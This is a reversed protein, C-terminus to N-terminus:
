ESSQRIIDRYDTAIELRMKRLEDLEKRKEESSMNPDRKVAEEAKKLSQMEARFSPGSDSLSLRASERDMYREAEADRGEDVLKNFTNRAQEAKELQEYVYDIVRNGDNAQFLSGIVPTKSLKKDPSPPANPDRLIPNAASLMAVALQTGVGRVFQDVQVPSVMGQSAGSLLKALDTTDDRFRETPDLRKMQATEVDADTFLDKGTALEIFPKAVQPTVNPVSQLMLTKLGQAIPKFEDQGFVTNVFAEPIAKFLLGYEFPIPIKVPEDLGPIRVFWSSLRQEPTANKYAEDDEMMAAYIMTMVAMGLGRRWFKNRIDLRDQYPMRGRASRYTVNLSQLQTNFFPVLTNMVYVSPSLGRRNFDIIDNTALFADLDNFGMRKYSDYASVRTGIDAYMSMAELKALGTTLTTRGSTIGRLITSIGELGEGALVQGGLLGRTELERASASKKFLAKVINKTPDTIPNFDAGSTGYASLSDRMIQRIPYLPNLVVFKRLLRAPFGFLQLAAPFTTKVGELGKVLLEAPIGEFITNETQVIAHRDVGNERFRITLPSAPGPGNRVVMGERGLDKLMGLKKLTYVVNKTTINRLAMDTLMHTNQVSSTFVDQIPKTGGVLERLYPQDKLNGITIPAAESGIFLQVNGGVERYFPIYDKKRKLDAAIEPSIAGAQVAFDIMGANYANYEKRAKEFAASIKPQSAVDKEVGRLKAATLLPEGDKDVGYNLAEVGIGENKVRQSALWLTFVRGAEDAKMGSEGLAKFVKVLSPNDAGEKTQVMWYNRAGESYKKLELPGEAAVNRTFNMRKDHAVLYYRAQSAELESIKGTAVGRQLAALFPATRDFAQTVGTLGLVNGKVTDIASKQTAVVRRLVEKSTDSMWDLDSSDGDRFVANGDPTIYVGPRGNKLAREADRILAQIEKTDKKAQSSLGTNRMWSRVASIMDRIFTKVQEAFSPAVRRGESARAIMERVQVLKSEQSQRLAMQATEVNPYLGLGVAVEAVHAEGRAFLKDSLAQVGDKGLVIDAGYHGILEHAITEELDAISKHAEGVVVVTGDPMVAGKARTRGRRKLAKKFVDPADVLTPAYVFKVGEPLANQVRDAIAKAEGADVGTDDASADRLDPEDPFKATAETVGTRLNAPRRVGERREMGSIEREAKAQAKATKLKPARPAPQEERPTFKIVPETQEQYARELEQMADATEKAQIESAIRKIAATDAANRRKTRAAVQKGLQTVQDKLKKVSAQQRLVNEQKRLAGLYAKYEKLDKQLKDLLTNEKLLQRQFSASGVVKNAVRQLREIEEVTEINAEKRRLDSFGFMADNLNELSIELTQKKQISKSFDNKLFDDIRKIEADIAKATEEVLAEQKEVNARAAIRAATEKQAQQLRATEKKQQQEANRKRRAEIKAQAAAIQEPTKEKVIRKKPEKPPLPPLPKLKVAKKRVGKQATKQIADETFRKLAALEGTRTDSITMGRKIVDQRQRLSQEYKLLPIMESQPANRAIAEQIKAEAAARAKALAEEMANKLNVPAAREVLRDLKDRIQEALKIKEATTLKKGTAEIRRLEAERVAADTIEAAYGLAKRQDAQRTSGTFEGKRLSDVINGYEFLANNRREAQKNAETIGKETIAAKTKSGEAPAFLSPPGAIELVEPVTTAAELAKSAKESLTTEAPSLQESQLTQEAISRLRQLERLTAEVGVLQKGATTLAGDAVLEKNPFVTNRQNTLTRIRDDIDRIAARAQTPDTLDVSGAFSEYTDLGLFKATSNEPRALYADLRPNTVQMLSPGVSLQGSDIESQYKQLLARVPAKEKLTRRSAAFIAELPAERAAKEAQAGVGEAEAEERRQQRQANFVDRAQQLRAEQAETLQELAQEGFAAGGVYEPSQTFLAIQQKLGAIQQETSAIQSQIFQKRLGVSNKKEELLQERQGELKELANILQPPAEPRAAEAEGAPYGRAEMDEAFLAAQREIRQGAERELPTGTTEALQQELATIRPQLATAEDYQGKKNLTKQRARLAQLQALVGRNTVGLDDESVGYQAAQAEFDALAQKRQESLKGFYAIAQQNNQEEAEALRASVDDLDAAARRYNTLFEQKDQESPGEPRAGLPTFAGGVEGFMDLQTGGYGALQRVKQLTRIEQRLANAEPSGGRKQKGLTKLDEKIAAIKAEAAAAKEPPVAGPLADYAYKIAQQDAAAKEEALKKAREAEGKPPARRGAVADLLFQAIAGAGAGYAASEGVGEILQQSPKYVQQAILNQAVASAAEQAGEYGGTTLARKVYEFIGGKIEDPMKSFLREVSFMEAVGPIVGFATSKTIQEPTAGAAVARERAEGAGLAAAVPTAAALQGARATYGLGKAALGGVGGPVLLTGFSGFAEGLKTPIAEEYGAAVSPKLREALSKIGERATKEFGTGTDGPLLSAAGLAASELGGVFGRPVAKLAERAYGSITLEPAPTAADPNQALVARAVDERSAGEPGEIRYRKGNPATIEYLPM